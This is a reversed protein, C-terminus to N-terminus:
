QDQMKRTFEFIASRFTRFTPYSERFNEFPEVQVLQHPVLRADQHKRHIEDDAMNGIQRPYLVTEQSRRFSHIRPDVRRLSQLLQRRLTGYFDKAFPQDVPGELKRSTLVLRIRDVPFKGPKHLSQDQARSPQRSPQLSGEHREGALEREGAVALKAAGQEAGSGSMGNVM